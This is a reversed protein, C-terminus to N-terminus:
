MLTSPLPQVIFDRSTTAQQQWLISCAQTILTWFLCIQSTWLLDGGAESRSTPFRRGYWCIQRNRLALLLFLGEIGLCAGASSRAGMESNESFWWRPGSCAPAVRGPGLCTPKEHRLHSFTQGGVSCRLFSHKQRHFNSLPPPPHPVGQIVSCFTLAVESTSDYASTTLISFSCLIFLSLILVGFLHLSFFRAAADGWAQTKCFSREKGSPRELVIFTV